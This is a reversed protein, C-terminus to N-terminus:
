ARRDERQARQDHHGRDLPAEVDVADAGERILSRADACGAALERRASGPAFIFPAGKARSLGCTQNCPLRPRVRLACIHACPFHTFTSGPAEHSRVILPDPTRRLSQHTKLASPLGNAAM